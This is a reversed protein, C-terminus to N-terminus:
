WCVAFFLFDLVAMHGFSAMETQASAVNLDIQKILYTVQITSRQASHRRFMERLSVVSSFRLFLFSDEDDFACGVSSETKVQWQLDRM